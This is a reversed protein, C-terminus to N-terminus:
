SCNIKADYNEYVVYTGEDEVREKSLAIAFLPVSTTKDEESLTLEYLLDGAEESWVRETVDDGNDNNQEQDLPTVNNLKCRVAQYPLRNILEPTIPFLDSPELIREWGADLFRVLFSDGLFLKRLCISLFRCKTLFADPDCLGEDQEELIKVRGCGGAERGIWVTGVEFLDGHKAPAKVHSALDKELMQLQETFAYNRVYFHGPSFVETVVVRLQAEKLPLFARAGRVLDLM